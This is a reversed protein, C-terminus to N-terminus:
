DASSAAALLTAPDRCEGDINRLLSNPETFAAPNLGVHKELSERARAKLRELDCGSYAVAVVPMDPHGHRVM